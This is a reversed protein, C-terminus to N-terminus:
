CDPSAPKAPFPVYEGNTDPMCKLRITPQARAELDEEPTRPRFLDREFKEIQPIFDVNYM